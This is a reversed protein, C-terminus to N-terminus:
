HLKCVGNKLSVFRQRTSSVSLLRNANSPLVRFLRLPGSQLPSQSFPLTMSIGGGGAGGISQWFNGVPACKSMLQFASNAENQGDVLICHLSHHALIINDSVASIGM